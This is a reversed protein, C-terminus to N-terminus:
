FRVNLRKIVIIDYENYIEKIEKLLEKYELENALKTTKVIDTSCESHQGVHMYSDITYNYENKFTPFLAIIDDDIFKRFVVKLTEKKM